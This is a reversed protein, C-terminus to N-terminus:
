RLSPPRNVWRDEQRDIQKQLETHQAEAAEARRKWYAINDILGLLASIPMTYVDTAGSEVFGQLYVRTAEVQEDTLPTYDDTM